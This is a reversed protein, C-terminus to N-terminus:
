MGYNMYQQRSAPESRISLTAVSQNFQGPVVTFTRFGHRQLEQIFLDFGDRPVVISRLPMKNLYLDLYMRITANAAANIEEQKFSSNSTTVKITGTTGPKIVLQKFRRMGITRFHSSYLYEYLTEPIAADPEAGRKVLEKDVDSPELVNQEFYISSRVLPSLKSNPYNLCREIVKTNISLVWDATTAEASDGMLFTLCFVFIFISPLVLRFM